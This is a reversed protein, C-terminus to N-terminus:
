KKSIDDATLKIRLLIIVNISMKQSKLLLYVSRTQKRLIYCYCTNLYIKMFNSLYGVCIKLLKTLTLERYQM